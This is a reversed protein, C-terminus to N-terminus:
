CFGDERTYKKSGSMNHLAEDVYADFKEKTVANEDYLFIDFPYPLVSEKLNGLGKKTLIMNELMHFKEILIKIKPYCLSNYFILLLEDQSLNARIIGIYNLRLKDM